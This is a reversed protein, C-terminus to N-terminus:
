SAALDLPLAITVAFGGTPLPSAELSSGDGFRAALRRRVNELGVGTGSSTTSGPGDDSVQIHLSGAEAWARLQVLTERGPPHVGHKVANEVLPQLLLSPVKAGSLWAPVDIVVRLREAFRIQEIELYLKQQAIEESLSTDSLPDSTLNSRFFSSLRMLMSEAQANRGDLILTSISNLANYLFHPNIQYRLARIEAERAAILAGALRAERERSRHSEDLMLAVLFWMLFPILWYLSEWIFQTLDFAGPRMVMPLMLAIGRVALAYLAACLIITAIAVLSRSLLRWTRSWGIVAYCALSLGSAALVCLVQGPFQSFGYPHDNLANLAVTWLETGTWLALALGAAPLWAPSAGPAIRADTATVGAALM